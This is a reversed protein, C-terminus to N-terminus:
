WSTTSYFTCPIKTPGQTKSNSSVAVTNLCCVYRERTIKCSSPAPRECKIPRSDSERNHMLKTTTHSKTDHKRCMSMKQNSFILAIWINGQTTNRKYVVWLFYVFHTNQCVRKFGSRKRSNIFDVKGNQSMNGILYHLVSNCLQPLEIRRQM